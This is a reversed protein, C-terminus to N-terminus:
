RGHSYGYHDRTYSSYEEPNKAFYDATLSEVDQEGSKSFASQAAATAKAMVDDNDGGGIAGQEDFLAESAAQFCKAVIEVEEPPLADEIHMMVQALVEDEVPLSYSKALEVFEGVRRAEREAEAVAQASKAITELEEVRGLAKSIVEDRADDTLAKSLQVRLQETFSKSVDTKAPKAPTWASKGVEELEQAPEVEEDPSWEYEVGQDDFVHEGFELTELDVPRGDEDFYTVEAGEAESSKAIVVRSHQNAGKRVLSVEDIQLDSLKTM